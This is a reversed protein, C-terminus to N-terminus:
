NFGKSIRRWRACNRKNEKGKFNINYMKIIPTEIIQLTLVADM